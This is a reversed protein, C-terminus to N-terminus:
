ESKEASKGFGVLQLEGLLKDLSAIVDQISMFAYFRPKESTTKCSNRKM